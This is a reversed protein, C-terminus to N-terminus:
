GDQLQDSRERIDRGREIIQELEEIDRLISEKVERVADIVERTEAPASADSVHGLEKESTEQSESMEGLFLEHEEQAEDLNREREERVENAASESAEVAASVEDVGDSTFGGLDMESRLNELLDQDARIQELDRGRDRLEDENRDTRDSLERRSRSRTDRVM